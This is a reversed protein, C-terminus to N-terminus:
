MYAVPILHSNKNDNGHPGDITEVTQGYCVVESQGLHGLNRPRHMSRDYDSRYTCFILM